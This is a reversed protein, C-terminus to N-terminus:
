IHNINIRAQWCIEDLRFLDEMRVRITKDLDERPLDYVRKTPIAFEVLMIPQTNYVLRFPTYQTTM